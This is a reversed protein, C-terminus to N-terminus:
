TSVRNSALVTLANLLPPFILSCIGLVVMLLLSVIGIDIFRAFFRVWPRIQPISETSLDQAPKTSSSLNSGCISCFKSNEEIERGCNPCYM